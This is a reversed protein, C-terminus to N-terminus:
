YTFYLNYRKKYKILYNHVLYLKINTEVNRKLNKTNDLNLVLINIYLYIFTFPFLINDLPTIAPYTFCDSPLQFHLNIYTM